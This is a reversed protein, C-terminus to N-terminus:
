QIVIKGENKSILYKKGSILKYKSDINLLPIMSEGKVTAMRLVFTFFMTIVFVSIFVTEVIDIIGDLLKKSSVNGINMKSM